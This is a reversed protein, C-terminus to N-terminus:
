HVSRGNWFDRPALTKMELLEILGLCHALVGDHELLAQADSGLIEQIKGM